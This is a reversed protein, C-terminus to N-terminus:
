KQGESKKKSHFILRCYKMAFEWLKIISKINYVVIWVVFLLDVWWKNFLLSFSSMTVISVVNILYHSVPFQYWLKRSILMKVLLFVVSSIGTSISAGVGGWIPVLLYNGILNILCAIITAISNYITKRKLNIGCGAVYSITEMSIVFMLFPMINAATEYEPKYVHYIVNRFLTILASSVMLITTIYKGVDEFYVNKKGEDYWKYALPTWFSSFANRLITLVSVISFASAYLGIETYTSWIRLSYKDMSHLIWSCILAPMYPLGYKLIRKIINIDPKGFFRYSSRELLVNVISKTVISLAKAYIINRYEKIGCFYLIVIFALYSIKDVVVSITYKKSHGKLRCVLVGYEGIVEFPIIIALIITSLIDSNDFLFNSIPSSFLVIVVSTIVSFSLSSIVCNYLLKEKDTAVSYERLYSRNLGLNAVLTLLTIATIFLSVKGLDEPSILWAAVISAVFSFIAGGIPGISFALMQSIFKTGESRDSKDKDMRTIVM